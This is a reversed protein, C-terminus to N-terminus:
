FPLIETSLFNSYHSSRSLNFRKPGSDDRETIDLALDAILWKGNIFTEVWYDSKEEFSGRVIRAPIDNARLLGAYLMCIEVENASTTEILEYLSLFGGEFTKDSLTYNDYIWEYITRAKAYESTLNYTLRTTLAYIEPRDFDIFESPLLNKITDSSINIVSFHMLPKSTNVSRIGLLAFDIFNDLSLNSETELSGIIDIVSDPEGTVDLFVRINHKGLGFPTYIMADFTNSVVPVYYDTRESDKTVSIYFGEVKEKSDLTGSFRFQNEVQVNSYLNTNLHLDYEFFSDFEVYHENITNISLRNIEFTSIVTDFIERSEVVDNVDTHTATFVYAINNQFFVYLIQHLVENGTTLSYYLSNAHYDGAQINKSGTISLADGYEFQLNEILNGLLIASTFNEDLPLLKVNLLYHEYQTVFGYTAIQNEIPVWFEPMYFSIGFDPIRVRKYHYFGIERYQAVDDRYNMTVTQKLKDHSFTLDYAATLMSLPIFVEKSSILIQVPLAVARGNIMAFDSGVKFKSFTNDKYSVFEMSDEFWYGQAGITDFFSKAPVMIEDNIIFSSLTFPAEGDSLFLDVNEIEGGTSPSLTNSFTAPSILFIMLGFMFIMYLKLKM